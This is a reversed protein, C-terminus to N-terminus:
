DEKDCKNEDRGKDSLFIGSPSMEITDKEKM